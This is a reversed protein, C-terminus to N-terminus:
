NQTDSKKHRKRMNKFSISTLRSVINMAQSKVQPALDKLANVVAPLSELLKGTALDVPTVNAESLVKYIIESFESMEDPSLSDIWENLTRDMYEARDTISQLTIFRGDEVVWTYPSHQMLGVGDSKIVTYVESDELLRGVVSGQPVTKHVLSEIAAYKGNEFFKPMFGPGDHSYVAAIRAKAKDSCMVAAYVALNGGKSHGGVVIPCKARAAVFNLYKAAAIQSPIPARFAMNFNEKWGLMTADTGRFAVYALSNEIFFTVASFQKELAYDSEDTYYALSIDRFRPNAALAFFLARDDDTDSIGKFMDPFHEALYLDRLKVRRGRGKLGCVLGDFYMYSLQSLILSDVDSFPKEEFSSFETKAYNVINQTM